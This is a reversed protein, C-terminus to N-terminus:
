NPQASLWDRYEGDRAEDRKLQEALKAEAVEPAIVELLHAALGALVGAHHLGAREVLYTEAKARLESGVEVPLGGM